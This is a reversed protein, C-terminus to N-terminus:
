NIFKIKLNIIIFHLPFLIEKIIFTKIIYILFAMQFGMLFKLTM